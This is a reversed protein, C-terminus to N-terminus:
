EIAYPVISLIQYYVIISFFVTVTVLKGLTAFIM